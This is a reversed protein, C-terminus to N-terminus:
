NKQFEYARWKKSFTVHYRSPDYKAIDKFYSLLSSHTRNSEYHVHIQGSCAQRNFQNVVLNGYIKMSGYFPNILGRDGYLNAEIINKGNNVIAGNRAIISLMTPAGSPPDVRRISKLHINGAAVIIGRGCVYLEDRFFLGQGDTCEVFTVGDCNFVQKKGVGPVDMETSRNEIDRSFEGTTAYYYSAKKLYQMPSYINAPLNRPEAPDWEKKMAETDAEGNEKELPPYACFGYPEVVNSQFPLPPLTIDVNPCGFLWNLPIWLRIMPMKVRSFRKWLNGEVRFSLPFECHFDGFLYTKNYFQPVPIWMTSKTLWPWDFHPVKLAEFPVNMFDSAGLTGAGAKGLLGELINFLAVWGGLPPVGEISLGYLSEGITPMFDHKAPSPAKFSDGEKERHKNKDENNILLAAIECGKLAELFSYSGGLFDLLGFNLRIEMPKTGNVRVRGPLYFNNAMKEIDLSGIASFFTKLKSFLSTDFFTINHIVLSGNGEHWPIEIDGTFGDTNELGEDEFLLKTNAVFFSYDPAIPQIDAVRFDRQTHLVKRIMPGRPGQPQYEVTTKVEFIGIKEVTVGWGVKGALTTIEDPFFGQIRKRISEKFDTLDIELKLDKLLTDKLFGKLTAGEGLKTCLGKLLAGILRGVPIPIAVAYLSLNISINKIVKAVVDGFNVDPIYNVLQQTLDIKFEKDSMISNLFTGVNLDTLSSAETLDFTIGPIEYTKSKPLIGFVRKISAESKISVEGGMDRYLEELDAFDKNQYTHKLKAIMEPGLSLELGLGNGATDAKEINDNKYQLPDVNGGGMVQPLRFKWFWSDFDLKKLSIADFLMQPDNMNEAILRYTLNTAAEACDMAKQDNVSRITLRRSAVGTETLTQAIVILIAAVGLVILYASGKRARRWSRSHM